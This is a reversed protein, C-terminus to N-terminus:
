PGDLYLNALKTSTYLFSSQYGQNKKREQNKNIKLTITKMDKM